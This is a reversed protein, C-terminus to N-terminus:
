FKPSQTLQRPDVTVGRLVQSGAGRGGTPLSFEDFSTSLGMGGGAAGGGDAGATM